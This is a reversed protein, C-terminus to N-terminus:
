ISIYKLVFALFLLLFNPVVSSAASPVDDLYFTTKILKEERWVSNYKRVFFDADASDEFAVVTATEDAKSDLVKITYKAGEPAYKKIVEEMEETKMDAKGFVVEVYKTVGIESDSFIPKSTGNACREYGDYYFYRNGTYWRFANIERYYCEYTKTLDDNKCTTEISSYRKIVDLTKKNSTPIPICERRGIEDNCRCFSDLPCEDDDSSCMKEGRKTTVKKCTGEDSHHENPVCGLGEECMMSSFMYNSDDSGITCKGGEKITMLEKCQGEYCFYDYYDTGSYFYLM